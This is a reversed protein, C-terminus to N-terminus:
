YSFTVKVEVNIPVLGTEPQPTSRFRRPPSADDPVVIEIARVRLLNADNGVAASANETADKVARKIAQRRAEEANDALWEIRPGPFSETYGTATVSRPVRFSPSDDIPGTAGNDVAMDALKTVNRTLRGRDKDRLTVVVQTQLHLSRVPVPPLGAGAGGRFGGLVARETVQVTTISAPVIHIDVNTLGLDAIAKKVKAVRRDNDERVNEQSQGQSNVVLTLRSGNPKVYSTANGTVIVKRPEGQGFAPM